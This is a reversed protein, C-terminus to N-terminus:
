NKGLIARLLKNLSNNEPTNTWFLFVGKTSQAIEEIKIASLPDYKRFESCLQGHKVKYETAFNFGHSEKIGVVILNDEQELEAEKKKAEDISSFKEFEPHWNFLAHFITASNDWKYYKALVRMLDHDTSIRLNSPSLISEEDKSYIQAIAKAMLLDRGQNTPYLYLNKHLYARLNLFAGLCNPNNFYLEQEEQNVLVTQYVNGIKPNNDVIMNMETIYPNFPGNSSMLQVADMDKMTYVIRDAVDLVKGLLGQNKIIANIEERTGFHLVFSREKKDLVEWWHDEEHLNVIDVQKAADGYAPTAIDHLLAAIIGLNIQKQSTRDQKLIEETILAVSLSHDLRSHTFNYLFANEPQSDVYSLFSLARIESLRWLSPLQNLAEEYLSDEPVWRRFDSYPLSEFLSSNEANVKHDTSINTRASGKELM